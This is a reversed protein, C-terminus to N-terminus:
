KGAFNRRFSLLLERPKAVQGEVTGWDVIDNNLSMYYEKGLANTALLSTEWLKDSSGWSLRVNMVGYGPQSAVATNAADWYTISQYVEDVRLSIDGKVFPFTYQASVNGKFAPVGQPMTDLTPGGPIGAAAGLSLTKYSLYGLSSEFLWGPTPHYELDVEVGKIRASGVNSYLFEPTGDIETAINQQLNTYNSWYLATNFLLRHDLWESKEGVEYQTLEEPAFTTVQLPSLPRPNFGGSKFGKSWSAYTMFDPDWQYQFALKPDTHSDTTQTKTLPLLPTNLLIYDEEFTYHLDDRTYRAGAEVSFKDTVHYIGHMFVSESTSSAPNNQSFVFQPFITSIDVPGSTLENARYYYAGVTWELAKDFSAGSLRFEQSKQDHHIITYDGAVWIPSGGQKFADDGDTTRYATISKLHLAPQLDWDVTLSEGGGKVNDVPNFYIGTLPNYFTANTAYTDYFGTVFRGDEPIGYKPINVNTNAAPLYGQPSIYTTRDPGVSGNDTTYDAALNVEL